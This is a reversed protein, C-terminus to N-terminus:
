SKAVKQIFIQCFDKLKLPGSRGGSARGRSGAPPEEGSERKPKREESAMTGGKAFGPDAVPNPHPNLMPYHNPIPILTCWAIGVSETGVSM